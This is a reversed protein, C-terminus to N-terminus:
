IRCILQYLEFMIGTPARVEPGIGCHLILAYIGDRSRVNAHRPRMAAFEGRGPLTCCRDLRTLQSTANSRKLRFRDM